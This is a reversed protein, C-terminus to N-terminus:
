RSGVWITLTSLGFSYAAISFPKCLLIITIFKQLKMKTLGALMCLFDDPAVPLFIAIAFFSEFRNRKDLWGIYKDYLKRSSIGQLFAGGLRRALLFASVSGVAIGIYNYLFGEVPGFIIVGALLSIGGPFVPIVVQVIQLIVFAVPGWVGIKQVFSKLLELSTFYGANWGYVTLIVTLLLGAISTIQFVTKLTISKETM